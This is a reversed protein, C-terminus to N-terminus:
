HKEIRLRQGISLRDPNKLGNWRMLQSTTVHNRRAIAGLTDGSKVRYYIVTQETKKKEVVAPDLYEKLYGALPALQENNYIIESSGSLRFKGSAPAESVPKPVITSGFASSLSTLVCITLLKLKM